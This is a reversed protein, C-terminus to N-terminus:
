KVFLILPLLVWVVWGIQFTNLSVVLSLFLPSLGVDFFCVVATYGQPFKVKALAYSCSLGVKVKRMTLLFFVTEESWISKMMAQILPLTFSYKLSQFKPYLVSFIELVMLHSHKRSM